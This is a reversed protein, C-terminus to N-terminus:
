DGEGVGFIEEMVATAVVFVGDEIEEQMEVAVDALPNEVADVALGVDALAVGLEGESGGGGGGFGTGAEVGGNSWATRMM